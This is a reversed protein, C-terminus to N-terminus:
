QHLKQALELTRTTSYGQTLEITTVKGGRALVVDSGVIEKGEYDRGKVLIDPQVLRILDYPTDEGFLVVVDVFSLAALTTARAEEDNVPRHLGKLRRVSEDNNLGVVLIDGLDRAKALYEIHGLHLIDFCGNSFVIVKGKFRWIAVHKRIQDWTQIKSRLTSLRDM